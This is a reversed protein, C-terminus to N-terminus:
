DNNGLFVERGIRQLEARMSRVKGVCRSGRELGIPDSSLYQGTDPDYYRHLNYSVGTEDDAWQGQFRHTADVIASIPENAAQRPPLMKGWLSYAGTWVAKGTSDFVARPLGIQDAVIPYLGGDTEQALPLYSGPEIHWTVCQGTTGDRM